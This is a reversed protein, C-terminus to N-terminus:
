DAAATSPPSRCAPSAPRPRRRSTPRRSRTPRCARRAQRADGHLRRVEPPVGGAEADTLGTATDTRDTATDTMDNSRIPPNRRRAFRDSLNYTKTCYSDLRAQFSDHPRDILSGPDVGVVRDTRRPSRQAHRRRLHARPRRDRGVVGRDPDALRLRVSEVRLEHGHVRRPRRHLRRHRRTTSSTPDAPFEDLDAFFQDDVLIVEGRTPSPAPSPPSGTSRPRTAGPSPTSSAARMSATASRCRSCASMAVRSSRAPVTGRRKTTRRRTAPARRSLVAISVAVSLTASVAAVAVHSGGPRSSAVTPPADVWPVVPGAHVDDADAPKVLNYPMTCYSDSRLLPMREIASSLSSSGVHGGVQRGVFEVRRWPQPDLRRQHGRGSEHAGGEVGAERWEVEVEGLRAQEAVDGLEARRGLGLEGIAEAIPRAAIPETM